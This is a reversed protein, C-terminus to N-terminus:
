KDGALQEIIMQTLDNEFESAMANTESLIYGSLVLSLLIEMDDQSIKGETFLKIIEATDERLTEETWIREATPNIANATLGSTRFQRKAKTSLM